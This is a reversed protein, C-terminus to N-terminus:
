RCLCSSSERDLMTVAVAALEEASRSETVLRIVRTGSLQQLEEIVFEYATRWRALFDCLARDTADKMPHAQHRGRVRQLLVSDSADLWIVVDIVSGCKQLALRWWDDFGPQRLDEHGRARLWALAFVVGEDLLVSEYQAASERSLLDHLAAFRIMYKADSWRLRQRRRLAILSPITRIGTGILLTRPLRWVGLHPRIAGDRGALARALTTKGCGAVGILEAVQPRSHM